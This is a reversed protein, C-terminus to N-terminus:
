SELIFHNYPYINWFFAMDAASKACYINWGKLQVNQCQISLEVVTINYLWITQEYEKVLTVINHEFSRLVSSEREIMYVFIKFTKPTNTSM